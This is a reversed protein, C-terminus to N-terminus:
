PRRWAPGSLLDGGGGRLLAPEAAVLGRLSREVDPTGRGAVLLAVLWVAPLGPELAAAEALLPVAAGAEGNRFRLWAETAALMGSDPRRRRAAAIGDLAPGTRGSGARIAALLVEGELLGPLAALAAGCDEEAEGPLGARFLARARALLAAARRGTGTGPFAAELLALPCSDRFRRFVVGAQRQIEAELEPTRANRPHRRVAATVVPAIDIRGLAAIRLYMDHDMLRSLPEHFPGAALLAEHRFMVTPQLFACGDLLLALERGPRVPPLLRLGLPRGGADILVADSAVAAAEPDGLLRTHLTTVHNPLLLDDDDLIVIGEIDEDVFTLATNIAAAKGRGGTRCLRVDLDAGEALGFLDDPVAADSGAADDAVIVLRAPVNQRLLVSTLAEELLAPRNRTPLIVAVPLPDPLVHVPPSGGAEGRVGRLSTRGPGAASRRKVSGSLAELLRLLRREQVAESPVDVLVQGGEPLRAALSEVFELFAAGRDRRGGADRLGLGEPVGLILLNQFPRLRAIGAATAPLARGRPLGLAAFARVLRRGASLPGLCQIGPAVMAAAAIPAERGIGAVVTGGVFTAVIEACLAADHRDGPRTEVTVM